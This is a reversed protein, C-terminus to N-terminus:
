RAIEFDVWQVVQGDKKADKDTIVVQLYYNGPELDPSLKVTGDGFIRTLDKQTGATIPVEPGSYVNKGDRFLRAQLVLNRLQTGGPLTSNYLRYAFYLDSNPAFKRSGPNVIAQDATSPGSAQDLIGLVVGSVALKKDKLNPVMVFQAASGIKSSNRDRVVLRVQYSGHGKVPMNIGMGMGNAKAHEFEADSFTVTAGRKFQDVIRGNDGFIVSHIEISGQRKGNVVGFELDEVNLYFYSRVLSGIQPEDAFFSTLDVEIDQARFPSALALNTIDRPTPKINKAEEETVGFFGYRTRLSMGGRKVKAKIHHFKRNFTDESPRYGLLYYGSQDEVIRNLEFSNSNRVQFGGTQRALLDGGERRALLLDMRATRLNQIQAAQERYNGRVVDAATLDVTALGQTDVSYIVVSSRIAKEAIKQLFGGYNTYEKSLPSADNEVIGEEKLVGRDIFFEDQSERPLSDSLIVMSKRGPLQGMSDVIFRLSNLTNGLSRFGCAPTSGGGAPRFVQVGVRSCPNWRVLDVARGLLRKDNTFQQLAGMEGGTRIIAILDNPKAQENIYKRLQNRVRYMSEFSLGFDDVVFAITRRPDEPNIRTFPVVDNKNAEKGPPPATTKPINSVYAFSTITQKRGDEYIEFDDATLNTVPKGDKTVVADVQVLNTTIRVVDDKDDDPKQPLPPPATTQALAPLFICFVLLLALFAKLKM